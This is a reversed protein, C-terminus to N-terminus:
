IWNGVDVALRAISGRAGVRFQLQMWAGSVFLTSADLMPQIDYPSDREIDMTGIYKMKKTNAFSSIPQTQCCRGYISWFYGTSPTSGSGPIQAITPPTTITVTDGTPDYDDTPPTITLGLGQDYRSLNVSRYSALGPDDPDVPLDIEDRILCM